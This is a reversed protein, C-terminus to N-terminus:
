KMVLLLHFLFGEAEAGATCFPLIIALALHLCPSRLRSRVNRCTDASSGAKAAAVSRSHPESM